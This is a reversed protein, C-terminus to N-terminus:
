VGKELANKEAWTKDIMGHSPNWGDQDVIEDVADLFQELQAESAFDQINHEKTGDQTHSILVSLGWIHVYIHDKGQIAHAQSEVASKTVELFIQLTTEQVDSSIM